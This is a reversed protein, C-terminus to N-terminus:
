APEWIYDRHRYTTDRCSAVDSAYDYAATRTPHVTAEMGHPTRIATTRRHAVVELDRGPTRWEHEARFRRDWLWPVIARDNDINHIATRLDDMTRDSRFLYYGEAATIGAIICARAAVDDALNGKAVMRAGTAEESGDVPQWGHQLCIHGALCAATGCFWEQQDWQEPHLEIHHLARVLEPAHGNM